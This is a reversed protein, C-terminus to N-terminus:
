QDAGTSRPESTRRYRRQQPQANALHSWTSGTVAHWANSITVGYTAALESLIAGDARAQRMALVQDETLKKNPVSIHDSRAQFLNFKSGSQPLAAVASSGSV